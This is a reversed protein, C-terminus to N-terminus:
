REWAPCAIRYDCLGCVSPSPTPEFRQGMIAEGVEAVVRAIWDPDMEASPVPIKVDDLVYYYSLREAEVEWSERAGVAYLSLQVDDALQEATKPRSTKYDILEYAGDELKDVRDVRGRLHHPGLKFSFSREFWVPEAEHAELRRHYLVLAARAKVHLESTGKLAREKDSDGFGGRRWCGEFLDMMQEVTTHEAAHYRELVQHVVIGFRQHLTQASPIKLVRGLKYRLPCARYTDIDSASLVLGDGRTPLFAQLSPEESRAFVGLAPAAVATKPSVTAGAGGLQRDEGAERRPARAGAAEDGVGATNSELGTRENALLAEDLTSTQFIERQLPTCAALLRQNIDALAEALSQGVPREKLAALKVLELYRVVGHSIDLDTDLRLEGLRGAIRLAGGLVEEHMLEVTAELTQVRAQAITEGGLLRAESAATLESALEQPSCALRPRLAEFAIKAEEHLAQFREIRERAEPPMQPSEIAPGLAAVIDLKAKRAVQVVRAIDVQRLEIPPRGLARVVASSDSPDTLLRLWALVDRAGAREFLETERSAPVPWAYSHTRELRHAPISQSRPVARRRSARPRCLRIPMEFWTRTSRSHLRQRLPEGRADAGVGAQLGWLTQWVNSSISRGRQISALMAVIRGSSSGSVVCRAVAVSRQRRRHARDGLEQQAGLNARDGPDERLAYEALVVDRQQVGLLGRTQQQQRRIQRLGSAVQTEVAVLEGGPDRDVLDGMGDLEAACRPQAVVEAAHQALQDVAHLDADFEAAM